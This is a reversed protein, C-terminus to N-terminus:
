HHTQKAFTLFLHLTGASCSTGAARLPNLFKYKITNELAKVCLEIVKGKYALARKACFIVENRETQELSFVFENKVGKFSFLLCLVLRKEFFPYRCQM